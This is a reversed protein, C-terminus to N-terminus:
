SYLLKDQWTITTQKPFCQFTSLKPSFIRHWRIGYTTPYSFCLFRLHPQVLSYHSTTMEWPQIVQGSPKTELVKRGAERELNTKFHM